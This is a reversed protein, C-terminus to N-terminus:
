QFQLNFKSILVSMNVIITTYDVNILKMDVLIM